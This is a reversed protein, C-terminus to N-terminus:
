QYNNLNSHYNSNKKLESDMKNNVSEEKESNSKNNGVYNLEVQHFNNCPIVDVDLTRGFKMNSQNNGVISNVLVGQSLGLLILCYYCHLNCYFCYIFSFNRSNVVNEYLFDKLKLENKKFIFYYIIVGCILGLLISFYFCFKIYSIKMYVYFFLVINFLTFTTSILFVYINIKGNSFFYKKYFFEFNLGILFSFIFTIYNLYTREIFGPFICKMEQNTDEFNQLNFFNSLYKFEGFRKLDMMIEYTAFGIEGDDLPYFNIFIKSKHLDIEKEGIEDCFEEFDYKGNLVTIGSSFFLFFSVVFFIMINRISFLKRDHQSNTPKLNNM